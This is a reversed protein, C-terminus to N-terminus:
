ATVERRDPSRTEGGHEYVLDLMLDTVDIKEELLRERRREWRIPTEPDSVLDRVASLAEDPGAANVLLGYYDELEVFNSMDGDGVFSNSRVAPTGLVAAETAMTQSDGVYLNAFALLDHIATPDCPLQHAAFEEPLDGETTIYVTGRDDLYEVLERKAERDLGHEGIDHHAEWSVFRLVYYEDDPDVGQARLRAPNPDFREPHLYALEHYGDYRVHREDLDCEIRSPTAMASVFPTTVRAVKHTQEYDDHFVVASAGTLWAAHAASPNLHSLVVDPDFARAVRATRLERVTWERVLGLTGGERASIPTHPIGYLDLLDTTLDKERSTVHVDHGDACLEVIANRFLHVHAPHTVDVLVRM